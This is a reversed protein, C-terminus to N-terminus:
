AHKRKRRWLWGGVLALLGPLGAGVVPGPAHVPPPDALTAIVYAGFDGYPYAGDSVFQLQLQLDFPVGPSVTFTEVPPGGQYWQTHGVVGQGNIYVVESIYWPYYAYEDTAMRTTVTLLGTPSTIGQWLAYINLTDPITNSVNNAALEYSNGSHFASVVGGSVPLGDPGTALVTSYGFIESYALVGGGYSNTAFVTITSAQAPLPALLATTLLLRKLMKTEQKTSGGKQQADFDQQCCQSAPGDM